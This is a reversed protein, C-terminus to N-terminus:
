SKPAAIIVLLLSKKFSFISRFYCESFWNGYLLTEIVNPSIIPTWANMQFVNSSNTSRKFFTCKGVRRTVGALIKPGVPLKGVKAAMAVGSLAHVSVCSTMLSLERM